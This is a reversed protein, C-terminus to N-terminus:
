VAMMIALFVAHHKGISNSDTSVTVTTTPAAIYM